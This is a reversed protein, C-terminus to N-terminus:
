ALADFWELAESGRGVGALAATVLWADHALLAVAGTVPEPGFGAQTVLATADTHLRRWWAVEARWLEAPDDIGDFVWRAPGSLSAGLDPFSAAQAAAPGLLREVTHRAAPPVPEGRVVVERALLLAVAGAVWPGAARVRARVREAWALRLGIQIDRPTSGGPDRWPSATLAARLEDPSGAQALRPWATALSGLVYPPAAPRGTVARLHEEINVIEFFGVLVRLLESGAAPLWGALVRLNWLLTAAVGRAATDADDGPRVAHGYPSHVLLEVAAPVSGAALLARAGDSGLRRRVLSRARVTGAVWAASM